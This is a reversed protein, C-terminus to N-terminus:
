RGDRKRGLRQLVATQRMFDAIPVAPIGSVTAGAPVNRMLGAKAAIRAGTGIELHGALGGQGGIMVYDGLRTSGSIGVQGALVCCRGLVVNHAIQVLNDIMSGAGIVTDHGSGRDITTNAGIDVDDGIIVRGLQPVKVPAEPGPAFGFGEQGIRVGPQLVVRDGILAHSVTVNAGIRCDNGIEVAASIVSNAGIRCRRGLRAQTEIVVNPGIECDEPVIADPDILASRAQGAAIPSVPYFARAALAYAKYPETALLVAMGSPAMGAFGAHVFAAGARSSRFVPLYKRNEIFSVDQPGATELPAVDYFLKHADVDPSLQTGSAQALEALTYPGTRNFFRPDAM